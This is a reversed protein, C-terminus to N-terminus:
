RIFKNIKGLSNADGFTNIYFCSKRNKLGSEIGPGIARVKSMNRPAIKM